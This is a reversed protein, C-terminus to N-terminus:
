TRGVGVEQFEINWRFIAAIESWCNLPTLLNILFSKQLLRFLRDGHRNKRLVM